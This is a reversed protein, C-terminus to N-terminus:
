ERHETRRGWRNLHAHGERGDQIVRDDARDGKDEGVHGEYGDLRVVLQLPHSADAAVLM